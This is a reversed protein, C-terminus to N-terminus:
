VWKARQACAVPFREWLLGHVHCFTEIFHLYFLKETQNCVGVVKLRDSLLIFNFVFFDFSAILDLLSSLAFYTSASRGGRSGTLRM